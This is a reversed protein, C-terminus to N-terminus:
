KARNRSWLLVLAIACIVLILEFGPTGKPKETTTGTISKHSGEVLIAKSFIDTAGADDTIKLTITYAGSKSYEHKPNKDTSNTGDSFNWLYSVIMGDIDTSSDTFQIIDDITPNIPSYSFNITPLYNPKETIVAYTTDTNTKGGDDTVTL